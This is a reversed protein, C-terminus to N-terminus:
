SNMKGLGTVPVVDGYGVTTTTVITWWLADMYNRMQPEIKTLPMSVFMILAWLWLLMKGVQNKELVQSIKPFRRILHRNWKLLKFIRFLRIIRFESEIPLIVIFDLPHEKFFIWKSESRVARALYEVVFLLYIFRNINQYRGEGDLVFCLSAIALLLYFAEYFWKRKTKM